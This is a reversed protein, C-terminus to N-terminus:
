IKYIVDKREVRIEWGRKKAVKYLGSSPNFAIPRDVMNLFSVDSESDGVGISGKLTAGYKKVAHEVLYKKDHVSYTHKAKGTYRGQPDTEFM